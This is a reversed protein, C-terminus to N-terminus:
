FKSAIGLTASVERADFRSVNSRTSQHRLRLHPAFGAYSVDNFQMQVEAYRTTDKKGGPVTLGVLSYGNAQSRQLGLSGSLGVPGIPDALTYSIQAGVMTSSRGTITTDFRNGLLTAAIMDKNERQFILSSRISYSRDGRRTGQDSRQEAEIASDLFARESLIARHGLALGWFSYDSGSQYDMRGATGELSFRHRSDAPAWEHRLSLSIRNWGFGPDGGLRTKEGTSLHVRRTTIQAGVSTESQGSQRLRYGLTVAAEAVVGKVAQADESLKGVFPLGDIINYQGSSGNNVNDSPRASFALQVRWPNRRKVGRFLAISKAMRAEDPAAEASKRLWWQSTTLAGRQFALDAALRASQFSQEPTKAYRYAQKAAREAMRPENMRMLSNAMLFHGFSDAPDAALLAMAIEAALEPRGLRIAELGLVRADQVSLRAQEPESQALETQAPETQAVAGKPLAFLPLAVVAVAGTLVRLGIGKHRQAM